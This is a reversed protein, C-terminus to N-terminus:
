IELQQMRIIKLTFYTVDKLTLQELLLNSHCHPDPRQTWHHRSPIERTVEQRYQYSIESCQCVTEELFPLDHGTLHLDLLQLLRDGPAVVLHLATLKQLNLTIHEHTRVCLFM